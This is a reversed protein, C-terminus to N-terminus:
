KNINVFKVYEHPLVWSTPIFSYEEPFQKKMRNLNRALPVKRCIGNMGPFHNIRQYNKLRMVREPAVSTDMWCVTWDDSTKAETWGLSNACQRVIDYKCNSLDIYIPPSIKPPDENTAM